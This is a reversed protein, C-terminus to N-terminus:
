CLSEYVPIFLSFISDNPNPNSTSNVPHMLFNSLWQLIKYYLSLYDFSLGFFWPYLYRLFLFCLQIYVWNIRILYIHLNSNCKIKINKLRYANIFYAIHVRLDQGSRLKILKSLNELNWNYKSIKIQMRVYRGHSIVQQSKSTKLEITWYNM